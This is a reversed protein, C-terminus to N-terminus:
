RQAVAPPRSPTASTLDYARERAAEDAKWIVMAVYVIFMIVLVACVALVLEDFRWGTKPKPM